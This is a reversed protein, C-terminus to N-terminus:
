ADKVVKLKGKLRDTATFLEVLKNLHYLSEISVGETKNTPAGIQIVLFSPGEKPAFSTLEAPFPSGKLLLEVQDIVPRLDSYAELLDNTQTQKSNQKIKM